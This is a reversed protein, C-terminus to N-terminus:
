KFFLKEQEATFFLCQDNHHFYADRLTKYGNQYTIPKRMIGTLSYIEGDGAYDYCTSVFQDLLSIDGFTLEQLLSHICDKMGPDIQDMLFGKQIIGNITKDDAEKVETRSVNNIEINNQEESLFLRIRNQDEETKDVKFVGASKEYPFCFDDPDFEGVRISHCCYVDGLTLPHIMIHEHYDKSDKYMQLFNKHNMSLEVIDHNPFVCSINPCALIHVGNFYDASIRYEIDGQMATSDDKQIQYSVFEKWGCIVTKGEIGRAHAIEYKANLQSDQYRASMLVSFGEFHLEGVENQKKDYIKLRTFSDIKGPNELVLGFTNLFVRAISLGQEKTLREYNM